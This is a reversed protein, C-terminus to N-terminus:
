MASPSIGRWETLRATASAIPKLPAAVGGCALSYSFAPARARRVAWLRGPQLASRRELSVPDARRSPSRRARAPSWAPRPRWGCGCPPPAPPRATWTLSYHRRRRARCQRRQELEVVGAGKGAALGDQRGHQSHGHREPRGHRRDRSHHELGPPSAPSVDITIHALCRARGWPQGADLLLVPDHGDPHGQGFLRTFRVTYGAVDCRAPRRRRGQTVVLRRRGPAIFRSRRARRALQPYRRGTLTVTSGYIVTAPYPASRCRRSISGPTACGSAPGCRPATSRRRVRPASSCRRSSARRPAASSCTSARAASGQHSAWASAIAAPTRHIPNDPWTHYPSTTDYPDPVGKLYPAARGVDM